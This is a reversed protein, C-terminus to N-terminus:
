NKGSSLWSLPKESNQKQFDKNCEEAIMPYDNQLVEFLYPYRKGSQFYSFSDYTQTATIM